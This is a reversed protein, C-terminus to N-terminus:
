GARVTSVLQEFSKARYKEYQEQTIYLYQYRVKSQEANVDECWQIARKKKELADLDEQGKTEVIYIENESKKVIFDPYYDRIEGSANQYDIKFHVAYYNKAYSV